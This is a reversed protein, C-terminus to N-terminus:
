QPCSPQLFREAHMNKIIKTYRGLAKCKRRGVTKWKTPQTKASEAVFDFATAAANPQFFTAQCPTALLLLTTGKNPFYKRQSKQDKTRVILSYARKTIRVRVPLQETNFVDAGGEKVESPQYVDFGNLRCRESFRSLRRTTTRM